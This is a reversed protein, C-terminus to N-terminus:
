DRSLLENVILGILVAALGILMGDRVEKLLNRLDETKQKKLEKRLQEKEMESWDKFIEVKVGDKVKENKNKRFLNRM